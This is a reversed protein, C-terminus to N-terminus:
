SPKKDFVFFAHEKVEKAKPTGYNEIFSGRVEIVGYGLRQLLARLEKNNKM